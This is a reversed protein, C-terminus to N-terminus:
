LIRRIFPVTRLNALRNLCGSVDDFAENCIDKSVKMERVWASFSDLVDEEEEQLLIEENEASNLQNEFIAKFTQRARRAGDPDRTREKEAADPELYFGRYAALLKSLQEEIETESFWEIVLAFKSKKGCNEVKSTGQKQASSSPGPRAGKGTELFRQQNVDISVGASGALDVTLKRIGHFQSTRPEFYGEDESDNRMDQGAVKSRKSCPPSPPDVARKRQMPTPSPTLPYLQGCLKPMAPAPTELSTRTKPAKPTVIDGIDVSRTESTTPVEVACDSGFTLTLARSPLADPFRCGIGSMTHHEVMFRNDPPPTAPLSSPVALLALSDLQWSSGDLLDDPLNVDLSSHGDTTESEGSTIALLIGVASRGGPTASENVSTIATKLTATEQGRIMIERPCAM